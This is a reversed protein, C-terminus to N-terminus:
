YPENPMRAYVTLITFLCRFWIDLSGVRRANTEAQSQQSSTTELVIFKLITIHSNQNINQTRHTKIISTSSRHPSTILRDLDHITLCDMRLDPGRSLFYFGFHYHQNQSVQQQLACTVEGRRWQHFEAEYCLCGQINRLVFKTM